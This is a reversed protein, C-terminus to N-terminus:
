IEQMELNRKCGHINMIFDVEGTETQIPVSFPQGHPVPINVAEAKKGGRTRVEVKSVHLRNMTITILWEGKKM